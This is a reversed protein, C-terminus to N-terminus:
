GPPGSRGRVRAEAEAWDEPTDLNASDEHNVILPVCRQGYISNGEMLVDRRTLYITGDRSYAPPVDQRRVVKAGEPLFNGLRGDTIRMVYHPNYHAPVEVVGVVSDAGTEGILRVAERLHQPTRLPATPQLLMILDPRWGAAEVHRVAHQLVPLMPTDDQALEPPRLFPVEFGLERGVAAIPEADTTLMLRHVVGAAAACDKVYALLPRGALLRLNKGPIGKSGGRAPVLGLIVPEGM